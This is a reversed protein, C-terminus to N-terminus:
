HTARKWFRADSAWFATLLAVFFWGHAHTEFLRTGIVLAGAMLVLLVAFHLWKTM